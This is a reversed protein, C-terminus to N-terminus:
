PRQRMSQSLLDCGRHRLFLALMLKAALNNLCRAGVAQWPTTYETSSNDSEKPFLVSPSLRVTELAHRM